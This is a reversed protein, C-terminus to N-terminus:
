VTLFTQSVNTYVEQNTTGDYKVTEIDKVSTLNEDKTKQVKEKLFTRRNVVRLM